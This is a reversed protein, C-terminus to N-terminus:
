PERTPAKLGGSKYQDKKDAGIDWDIKLRRGEVTSGDYKTKADEADRRDEYAVFAFGKNRGTFRDFPVSVSKLRGYRDFLEQVDEERFAYPLNGIYLCTSAQRQEENGKIVEYRRRPPPSGGRRYGSGGDYHRGGGYDGRDYGGRSDRSYANRGYGGGYGGEPGRSYGGRYEAPDGRHERQYGSGGGYGGGYGGPGSGKYEAERETYRQYPDGAGPGHESPRHASFGGRPSLSRRPSPPRRPSLSRPRGVSLDNYPRHETPNDYPHQQYLQAGVPDPASAM